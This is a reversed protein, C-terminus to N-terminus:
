DVTKNGFGVNLTICTKDGTAFKMFNIEDSNLTVKKLVLWRNSEAFAVNVCNQFRDSELCVHYFTM